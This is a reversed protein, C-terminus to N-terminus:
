KCYTIFLIFYAIIKDAWEDITPEHPKRIFLVNMQSPDPWVITYSSINLPDKCVYGSEICSRESESAIRKIQFKNPSSTGDPREDEIGSDEHLEISYSTPLAKIPTKPAPEM